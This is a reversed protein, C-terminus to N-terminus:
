SVTVGVAAGAMVLAAGRNMVRRSKRDALLGRLRSSLAAYTLTIVPILVFTVASLEAYSVLTLRRLDIAAPLLAVFFAIAKPNGMTMAAQSLFARKGDAVPAQADDTVPARWFRWALYLLYVAGALKVGLFLPGMAKALAALGLASLTMLVWDGVAMGFTAPITGKFGSAIARAVIAIIGPGPVAIAVAYLGIYLMLSQTTLM